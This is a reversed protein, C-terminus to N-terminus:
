GTLDKGNFLVQWDEKDADPNVVPAQAQAALAIFPICFAFATRVSFHM